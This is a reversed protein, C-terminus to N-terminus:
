EIGFRKIYATKDSLVFEVTQGFFDKVDNTYYLYQTYYVGGACKIEFRAFFRTLFRTPHPEAGTIKGRVNAATKLSNCKAKFKVANCIFYVPLPLCFVSIVALLLIFVILKLTGHLYVITCTVAGGILVASYIASMIIQMTFTPKKM